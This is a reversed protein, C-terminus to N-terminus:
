WGDTRWALYSKAVGRKRFFADCMGTIDFVTDTALVKQTQKEGIMKEWGWTKWRAGFVADCMARIHFVTNTAKVM